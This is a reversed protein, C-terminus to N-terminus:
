SQAVGGVAASVLKDADKSAKRDDDADAVAAEGSDAVAAELEAFASESYRPM